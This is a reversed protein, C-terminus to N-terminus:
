FSVKGKIFVVQETTDITTPSATEADTSALRGDFESGKPGFMLYVGFSLEFDDFPKIRLEPMLVFGTDNINLIGTFSLQYTYVWEKSLYLFLYDQGLFIQKGSLTKMVDYNSKNKEGPGNRLYEIRVNLGFKFLYDIGLVGVFIQNFSASDFDQDPLRFSFEGYIGIELEGSFDLTAYHSHEYDASPQHNSNYFVERAYGVSFDWGGINTRFKIGLPLNRYQADDRFAYNKHSRDQVAIYGRIGTDQWLNFQFTIGTSGFLQETPSMFNKNNVKDTPNVFYGTGWAIVQKGMKLGFSKWDAAFYAQDVLITHNYDAGTGGNQIIDNKSATSLLKWKDYMVISNYSGYYGQYLLEVHVNLNERVNWHGKLRLESLFGPTLREKVPQDAYEKSNQIFMYSDMKIYGSIEFKKKGPATKKPSSDKDKTENEEEVGYESFDLAEAPMESDKPAEEPDAQEKKAQAFSIDPQLLTVMAGLIILSMFVNFWKIM